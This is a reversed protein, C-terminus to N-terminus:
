RPPRSGALAVTGMTAITNKYREYYDSHHLGTGEDYQVDDIRKMLQINDPHSVMDHYLLCLSILVLGIAVSQLISRTAKIIYLYEPTVFFDVLTILSLAMATLAIRLFQKNTNLRNLSYILLPFFSILIGQYFNNKFIFSETYFDIRGATGIGLLFVFIVMLVILWEFFSHPFYGVSFLVAIWFLIGLWYLLRVGAPDVPVIQRAVSEQLVSYPDESLSM